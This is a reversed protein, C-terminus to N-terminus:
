AVALAWSRTSRNGAADRLIWEIRHTGSGLLSAPVWTARTTTRGGLRWTAVVRGDVVLQLTGLRVDDTVKATELLSRPAALTRAVGSLRVFRPPTRDLSAPNPPAPAIVISTPGGRSFICSFYTGGSADVASGCGFRDYSGLINTRHGASEMFGREAIVVSTIASTSGGACNAGGLDCGIRYTSTGAPYDNWALNEARPTNYGFETRLVDLITTGSGCGPIAHSFYSRAAMDRARGSLVLSANSPCSFRRDRALSVLFPDIALTPKGLAARDLNTLRMLAAGAPDVTDAARAVSTAPGPAAVFTLATLVAVLVVFHPKEFRM